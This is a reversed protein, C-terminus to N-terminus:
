PVAIIACIRYAFVFDKDTRKGDSFLKHIKSLLTEYDDYLFLLLFSFVESTTIVCGAHNLSPNIYNGGCWTIVGWWAFV